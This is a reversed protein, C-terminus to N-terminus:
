ATAADLLERAVRLDDPSVIDYRRFVSDTKHGTMKMAVTQPVGKRVLNRVATRRLDHPIRGPCGAKRCAVKFAKIFSTIPQPKKEGGRGVAVMRFFVWPVNFGRKKLREHEAHQSELVRRLDITLPFTRGSKNKTTGPELRVEGAKFDVQRWELTLVEAKTRWGTIYAFTVVPQLEDSLHRLVTDYEHREFFGQRANDEQLLKIKPRTMLKGADVALRFMHKLWALERNITANAVPRRREPITILGRRTQKTRAPIITVEAQRKAIYANITAVSIDTMKKRTFFPTLHKAIRAELKTTDRGNAKHHNILDDRAEDYKLRGVHSTVPIGKATDGERLRLIREADKRHPSHSSEYQWKGASRYKVWWTRRGKHQYICGV